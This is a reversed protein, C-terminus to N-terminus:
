STESVVVPADWGALWAKAYGRAGTPINRRAGGVARSDYPCAERPKGAERAQRGREYAGIHGKGLYGGFANM